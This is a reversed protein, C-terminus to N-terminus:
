SCCQRQRIILKHRPLRKFQMSRYLPKFPTRCLLSFKSCLSCLQRILYFLCPFSSLHACVNVWLFNSLLNPAFVLSSVLLFSLLLVNIVTRARGVTDEKWRQSLSSCPSLVFDSLGTGSFDSSFLLTTFTHSSPFSFISPPFPLSCAKGLEDFQTDVGSPGPVSCVLRAKLFTTWRNILSRKGGVDNQISLSSSSYSVM